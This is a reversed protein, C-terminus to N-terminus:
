PTLEFLLLMPWGLYRQARESRAALKQDVLHEQMAQITLGAKLAALVYDSVLHRRSAPL